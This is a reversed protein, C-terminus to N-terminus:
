FGEIVVVNANSAISGIAYIAANPNWADFMWYGGPPIKKGKAATAATGDITVFIDGAADNNEVYLAKRLGNAALLLQSANTVTAQAQTAAGQQGIISVVGSSRNYSGDGSGVAIKITQAGASTFALATFKKDPKSAFGFEMNLAQAFVGGDRLFDIDVGSSTELLQVYNGILELQIRQGALFTINLTKM